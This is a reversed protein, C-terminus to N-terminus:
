NKKQKKKLGDLEDFLAVDADAGVGDGVGGVQDRAVHLVEDGPDIRGLDLAVDQLVAVLEVVELELGQLARELVM